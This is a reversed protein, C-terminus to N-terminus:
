VTNYKVMKIKQKCLLSAKSCTVRLWDSSVFSHFDHHNLPPWFSLSFLFTSGLSWNSTLLCTAINNNPIPNLLMLSSQPSESQKGFGAYWPKLLEQCRTLGFESLTFSHVQWVFHGRRQTQVDCHTRVRPDASVLSCLQTLFFFFLPSRLLLDCVHTGVHGNGGPVWGVCRSLGLSQGCACMMIPTQLKVGAFDCADVRVAYCLIYVNLWWDYSSVETNVWEGRMSGNINIVAPILWSGGAQLRWSGM